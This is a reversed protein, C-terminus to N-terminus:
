VASEVVGDNYETRLLAYERAGDDYALVIREVGPNIARDDNTLLSAVLQLGNKLLAADFCYREKGPSPKFRVEVTHEAYVLLQVHELQIGRSSLVNGYRELFRDILPTITRKYIDDWAPKLIFALTAGFIAWEGADANKKIWKGINLTTDQSLLEILEADNYNPYPLYVLLEPNDVERLPIVTSISFGGWSEDFTGEHLFVDGVLSWDGPSNPDPEVRLNEMYGVVPQAMDHHQHLPVRKGSVKRCIDEFVAVPLREGQRDLRTGGLIQALYTPM